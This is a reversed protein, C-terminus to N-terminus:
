KMQLDLFACVRLYVSHMHAMPKVRHYLLYVAGRLNPRSVLYAINVDTPQPLTCRSLYEPLGDLFSTFGHARAPANPPLELPLALLSVIVM